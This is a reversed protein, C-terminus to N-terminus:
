ISDGEKDYDNDANHRGKKRRPSMNWRVSLADSSKTFSFYNDISKQQQPTLARYHDKITEM